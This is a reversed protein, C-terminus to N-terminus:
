LNKLKNRIRYKFVNYIYLPTETKLKFVFPIKYEDCLSHLLGLYQNSTLKSRFNHNMIDSYNNEEVLLIIEAKSRDFERKFRDRNTSINKSLEDLNMKREIVLEDSLNIEEIDGDSPLYASYDGSNLKRVEWKINYKDFTKTIHNPLHERSDVLIIIRDIQEKIQKNNM